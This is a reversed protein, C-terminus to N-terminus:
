ALDHVDDAVLDRRAQDTLVRERHLAAPLEAMRHGEVLQAVAPDAEDRESRDVERDPVRDALGEPLRQPPEPAAVGVPDGDVDDAAVVAAVEVADPVLHGLPAVHAEAAALELHPRERGLLVSRADTGRALRR